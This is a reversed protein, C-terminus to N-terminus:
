RTDEPGQLGHNIVLASVLPRATPPISRCVGSSGSPRSHAEPCSVSSSSKHVERLGRSTPPAHLEIRARPIRGELRPGKLCSCCLLASTPRPEVPETTTQGVRNHISLDRVFLLSQRCQVASHTVVSLCVASVSLCRLSSPPVFSRLFSCESGARGSGRSQGLEDLGEASTFVPELWGARFLGNVRKQRGPVRKVRGPHPYHRLASLWPPNCLWWSECRRM